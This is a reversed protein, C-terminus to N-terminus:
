AEGAESVLRDYIRHLGERNFWSVEMRGQEMNGRLSVKTGLLDIFKRELGKLEADKGAVELGPSDGLFDSDGRVAEGEPRGGAEGELSDSGAQGGMSARGLELARREAERVSLGGRVIEGFLGGRLVEDDVSLLARAHGATMEGGAVAEQMEPSLRLLRLSNAVTSRNRGVRDALEQQSFGLRDIAFQYAHAEEIASLDERQINEVLSIGIKDEETFERVIVPIESLGARRSARWRREGAVLRYTGDHLAEAIVPQIVGQQRVSQALEELAEDDFVTRPQNPNPRILELAVSRVAGDGAVSEVGVEVDDLGGGSGFLADVGM